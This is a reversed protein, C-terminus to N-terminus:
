SQPRRLPPSLHFLRPRACSTWQASQCSYGGREQLRLATGLERCRQDARAVVTFWEPSMPRLPARSEPRVVQEHGRKRTSGAASRGTRGNESRNTAQASLASAEPEDDSSLCVVENMGCLSPTVPLTWVTSALGQAESAKGAKQIQRSCGTSVLRNRESRRERGTASGPPYM